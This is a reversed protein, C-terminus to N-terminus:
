LGLVGGFKCGKQFLGRWADIGVGGDSVRTPGQVHKAAAPEPPHARVGVLAYGRGSAMTLSEMVAMRAMVNKALEVAERM